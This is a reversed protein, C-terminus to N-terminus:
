LEMIPLISADCGNQILRFWYKVRSRMIDISRTIYYEALIHPLTEAWCPGLSFENWGYLELRKQWIEAAFKFEDMVINQKYCEVLFCLMIDELTLNGSCYLPPYQILMNRYQEPTEELLEMDKKYRNIINVLVVPLTNMKSM